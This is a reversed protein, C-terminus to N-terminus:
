NKKEKDKNRENNKEINVNWNIIKTKKRRKTSMM